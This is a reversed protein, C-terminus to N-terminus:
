TAHAFYWGSIQELYDRPSIVQGFSQSEDNLDTLHFEPVQGDATDCALSLPALLVLAGLVPAKM